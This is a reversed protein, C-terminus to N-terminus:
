HISTIIPLVGLQFKIFDDAKWILFGSSNHLVYQRFSINGILHSFNSIIYKKWSSSFCLLFEVLIRSPFLLPNDHQINLYVSQFFSFICNASRWCFVEWKRESFVCFCLATCTTFPDMQLFCCHVRMHPRFIFELSNVKTHYKPPHVSIKDFSSLKRDNSM